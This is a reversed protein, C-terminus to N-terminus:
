CRNGIRKRKQPPEEVSENDSESEDTLSEMRVAESTSYLNIGHVDLMYKKIQEETICSKYEGVCKNLDEEDMEIDKDEPLELEPKIDKLVKRIVTYVMRYLSGTEGMKYLIEYVKRVGLVHRQKFSEDPENEYLTKTGELNIRLNDLYRKMDYNPNHALKNGKLGDVALLTYAMTEYGRKRLNKLIKVLKENRIFDQSLTHEWDENPSLTRLIKHRIDEGVPTHSKFLQCIHRFSMKWEKMVESLVRYKITELTMGNSQRFGEMLCEVIKQSFEPLTEGVFCGRTSCAVDM